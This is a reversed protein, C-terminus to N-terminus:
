DKNLVTLTCGSKISFGNSFTIILSKTTTSDTSLKNLKANSLNVTATGSSITTSGLVSTGGWTVDTISVDYDEDFLTLTLTYSIVDETVSTTTGSSSTTTTTKTEKLSGETMSWSIKKSLTATNVLTIYIDDPLTEGNNLTIKLPEATNTIDILSSAEFSSVNVTVTATRITDDDDNVYTGYEVTYDTGSTLTYDDYTLKSVATETSTLSGAETSSPVNRTGLDLRFKFYSDDDSANSLYVRSFSNTYEGNKDETSDPNNVVSCPYIYLRVGATNSSTIVDSNALTMKAFLLEETANDLNNTAIIKTTIIYANSSDTSATNSAVTSKISVTGQSVGYSDLFDITSVTTSVASYLTFTLYTSSDTSNVAGATTILTTLNSTSPEDPYVVGDTGSVDLEVSAVAFDVDDTEEILKKRIYIHSGEPAVVNNISIEANSKIATWSATLYDLENNKKVITYEFPVTSSAAKVQLSLTTSSTYKMIIGYTDADPAGEQVPVTLTTIKSVQKSSSANTRFQLTVESRSASGTTYMASPAIESLPIKRTKTVTIWDTTTSDSNVIRYAQGKTASISLSSGDVTVSPASSKAKITLTVEKSPRYGVSSTGTGNVPALRFIVSVGENCMYNLETSITSTDVTNWTSSAKKRWQITRNVTNSFSLTGKSQNYTAKFNTVQKPITVSVVTTSYDGKFTLVYNSSVSIWSIDMTITKSSSITGPVEEWTKKKSDSFYIKTDAANVKLTITSDQYNIETVTISTDAKAIIPSFYVVVFILLVATAALVCYTKKRRSNLYM